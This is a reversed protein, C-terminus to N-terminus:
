DCPQRKAKRDIHFAKNSVNPLPCDKDIESQYHTLKLLRKHRSHKCEYVYRKLREFFICDGCTDIQISFYKKM